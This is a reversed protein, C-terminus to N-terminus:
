GCRKFEDFLRGEMKLAEPLKKESRYLEPLLATKSHKEDEGRFWLEDAQDSLWEERIKAVERVYQELSTVKVEKTKSFGLMGSWKVRPILRGATNGTEHVGM